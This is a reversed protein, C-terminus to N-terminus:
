DKAEFKWQEGSDTTLVLEKENVSAVKYAQDKGDLTVKLDKNDPSLTYKGNQTGFLISVEVSGDDKFEYVSGKLFANAMAAGVGSMANAMDDMGKTMAKMATDMGKVGTSDMAAAASDLAATMEVKPLSIDALKWKGIIPSEMKKGGCATLLVITALSLVSILKKMTKNNKTSKNNRLGPKPFFYGV